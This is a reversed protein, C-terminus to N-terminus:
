VDFEVEYQCKVRVKKTKFNLTAEVIEPAEKEARNCIDGFLAVLAQQHTDKSKANKANEENQRDIIGQIVGRGRNFDKCLAAISMGDGVKQLVLAREQQSVVRRTRKKAM